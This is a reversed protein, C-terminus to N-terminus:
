RVVIYHLVAGQCQSHRNGFYFQFSILTMPSLPTSVVVSSRMPSPMPMSSLRAHLPPVFGPLCFSVESWPFPLSLPSSSLSYSFSFSALSPSPRAAGVAAECGRTGTGVRLNGQGSVLLRSASFVDATGMTEASNAEHWGIETAETIVFHLM